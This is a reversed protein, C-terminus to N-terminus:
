APASPAPPAAPRAPMSLRWLWLCLLGTVVFALGSMWVPVPYSGLMVQLRLLLRALHGLCVLGFLTGAVRLGLQTSNM